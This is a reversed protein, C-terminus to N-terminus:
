GTDADRYFYNYGPDWDREIIQSVRICGGIDLFSLRLYSIRELRSHHTRSCCMCVVSKSACIGMQDFGCM